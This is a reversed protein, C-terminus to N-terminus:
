GTSFWFIWAPVPAINSVHQSQLFYIVETVYPLFNKGISISIIFHMQLQPSPISYHFDMVPYHFNMGSYHFIRVQITFILVQITFDM